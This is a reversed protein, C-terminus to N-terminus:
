QKLIRSLNDVSVPFINRFYKFNPKYCGRFADLFINIKLTPWYRNLFNFKPKDILWNMFDLPGLLLLPLLVAVFIFITIALSGYPLVYEKQGFYYQGAYYILTINPTAGDQDFIETTSFLKTSTLSFMTYSLYIFGVFAHILPRQTPKNVHNVAAATSINRIQRKKSFVKFSKLPMLLRIVIIPFAAVAYDLCIVDLANLNERICFPQMFQSFTNLNFIGYAIRYAKQISHLTDGDGKKFYPLSYFTLDVVGSGILQAYLIFGVLPGSM